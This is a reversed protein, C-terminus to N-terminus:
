YFYFWGYWFRTKAAFPNLTDTCSVSASYVTQETMNTSLATYERGGCVSKNNRTYNIYAQEVHEGIEVGYGEDVVAVYCPVFQIYGDYFFQRREVNSWYNDTAFVTFSSLYVGMAALLIVMAKKAKM